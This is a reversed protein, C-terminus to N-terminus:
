QLLAYLSTTLTVLVDIICLKNYMVLRRILPYVYLKIHHDDTIRHPVRHSQPIFSKSQRPPHERRATVLVLKARACMYMYM